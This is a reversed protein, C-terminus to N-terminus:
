GSLSVLPIDVEYKSDYGNLLGDENMKLGAATATTNM